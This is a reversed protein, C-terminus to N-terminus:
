CCFDGPTKKYAIRLVLAMSTSVLSFGLFSVGSSHSLHKLSPRQRQQLCFPWMATDQVVKEFEGGRGVREGARGRVLFTATTEVVAEVSSIALSSSSRTM